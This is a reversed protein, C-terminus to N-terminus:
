PGRQIPLGDGNKIIDALAELYSKLLFEDPRAALEGLEQYYLKEDKSVQVEQARDENM